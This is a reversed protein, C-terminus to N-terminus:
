ENMFDISADHFLELTLDIIRIDVSQQKHTPLWLPHSHMQLRFITNLVATQYM